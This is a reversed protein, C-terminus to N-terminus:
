VMLGMWAAQVTQDHDEASSVKLWVLRHLCYFQIAVRFSCGFANDVSQVQRAICRENEEM